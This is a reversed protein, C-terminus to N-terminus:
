AAYGWTWAPSEDCNVLVACFSPVDIAVNWNQPNEDGVLSWSSTGVVRGRSNVLPGGSNGTNLPATSIVGTSDVNIVNGISISGELGYPAGVAMVWYGPRPENAPELAPVLQRIGVLALDNEEDWSYLYADFTQGDATARVSKPRDTCGEVVHHNTVVETPFQRDIEIAEPDATDSLPGLDIVWGSGLSDGCEIIVVSRQVRDILADLDKPPAYLDQRALQRELESVRGELHVGIGVSGLAVVLIVWRWITRNFAAAHQSTSAGSQPVFQGAQASVPPEPELTADNTLDQM